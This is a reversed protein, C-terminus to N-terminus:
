GSAQNGPQPIQVPNCMHWLICIETEMDHPRSSTVGREGFVCPPPVSLHVCIFYLHICISISVFGFSEASRLEGVLPTLKGRREFELKAIPIDFHPNGRGEPRPYFDEGVGVPTEVGNM